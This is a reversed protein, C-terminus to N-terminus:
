ILSDFNVEVINVGNSTGIRDAGAEVMSMFSNYDRIGGSAKVKMKDGAIERMLKIDKVVAGGISFGTSTKIFDAGAELALKSAICKEEDTLLCTEIIVKVVTSPNIKKVAEVVGIIDCKVLEINRAKLEGVNIVMDIEDAGQKVALEAEYSKVEGITAGLPFGVVTCVKVESNLLEESVKSVFSSNVCVSAFGYKKAEDCLKKVDEITADARLITHDIMKAIQENTM